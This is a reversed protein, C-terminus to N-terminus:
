NSLMWLFVEFLFPIWIAITFYVVGAMLLIRGMLSTFLTVTFRLSDLMGIGGRAGESLIQAAARGVGCHDTTAWRFLGTAASGAINGATKFGRISASRFNHTPRARKKSNKFSM